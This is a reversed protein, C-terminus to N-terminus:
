RRPGHRPFEPRSGDDAVIRRRGVRLLNTPNTSELVIGEVGSSLLQWGDNAAQPDSNNGGPVDTDSGAKIMIEGSHGGGGQYFMADLFLIDGAAVTFVGVSQNHATGGSFGITTDGPTFSGNVQDGQATFGTYGPASGATAETLSIQRGDDSGMAISYTGGTTFIMYTRGRIAYNDGGNFPGVGGGPGDGNITNVAPGGNFNGNDGYDFTFETDTVNVALDYITSGFDTGTAGPAAADVAAFLNLWNTTTTGPDDGVTNLLHM